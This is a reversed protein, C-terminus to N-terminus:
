AGSAPVPRQNPSPATDDRVNADRANARRSFDIQELTWRVVAEGASALQEFAIEGPGCVRSGSKDWPDFLVTEQRARVIFRGADLAAELEGLHANIFECLENPRPQRVSRKFGSEALAQRLRDLTISM